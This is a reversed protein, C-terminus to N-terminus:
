SVDALVRFQENHEILEDYTGESHIKGDTMFYIRDCKMVTTLRHAITIITRDGKLEEIAQIIQKETINDLASTAEDMVLVQPDHYLARAIGIRQRQGGSLRVGREGILADLGDPLRTVFDELQALRLAKWVKEDDIEKEPIGFAINSRLSEDSLYIFQPIYGINRQWASLHEQINEGDVLIEGRVPDLLGLLLDVMTTKGAGSPGTFAISQGRPITLTVGKLAMEESGPYSYHVNRVEIDRQIQLREKKKRDALFRKRYEALETIDDYLPDVVVLSYRLKTISKTIQQIAPM